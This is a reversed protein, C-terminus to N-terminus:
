KKDKAKGVIAAKAIKGAAVTTKAAARVAAKIVPYNVPTTEAQTVNAGCFLLVTAILLLRM